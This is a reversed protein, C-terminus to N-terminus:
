IYIDKIIHIKTRGHARGVGPQTCEQASSKQNFQTNYMASFSISFHFIVIIGAQKSFIMPLCLVRIKNQTDHSLSYQFAESKQFTHVHEFILIGGNKLNQSSELVTRYM